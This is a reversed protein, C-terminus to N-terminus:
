SRVASQWVILSLPQHISPVGGVRFRPLKGTELSMSKAQKDPIAVRNGPALINREDRRERLKKNAQHDWVTDPAFGYRFAIKPICEGERVIHEKM